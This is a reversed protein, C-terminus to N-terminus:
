PSNNAKRGTRRGERRLHGADARPDPVRAQGEQAGCPFLKFHNWQQAVTFFM